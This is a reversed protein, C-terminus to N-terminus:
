YVFFRGARYRITMGLDAYAKSTEEFDRKAEMYAAGYGCQDYADQVRQWKKTIINTISEITM